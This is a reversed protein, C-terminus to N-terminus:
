KVRRGHVPAHDRLTHVHMSVGVKSPSASRFVSLGSVLIM